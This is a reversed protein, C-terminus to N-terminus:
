VVSGTIIGACQEFVVYYWGCRLPARSPWWDVSAGNQGLSLNADQAWVSIQPREEGGWWLTM